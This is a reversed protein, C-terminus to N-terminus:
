DGVVPVAELKEAEMDELTKVAWFWIATPILAVLLTGWAIWGIREVGFSDLLWGQTLTCILAAIYYGLMDVSFMRGLKVDPATKQIIVNSYTWNISAGMGRIFIAIAVVLLSGGWGIFPWALAALVFGVGILRRMQKISGDNFRNSIMPGIVTGLGLASYLIGLSLEGKTGMAFLSAGFFTM